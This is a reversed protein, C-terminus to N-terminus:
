MMPIRRRLGEFNGDVQLLEQSIATVNSSDKEQASRFKWGGLLEESIATVDNLDKEQASRFQWGGLLEKSIATM